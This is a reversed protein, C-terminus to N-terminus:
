RVLSNYWLNRSFALLLTACFNPLLFTRFQANKRIRSRKARFPATTQEQNRPCSLVVKFKRGNYTFLFEREPNVVEIDGRAYHDITATLANLITRKEGDEERTRPKPNETRDARRAKKAGAQLEKALPFLDAGQDIAKDAKLVDAIEEETMGINRMAQIQKPANAGKSM